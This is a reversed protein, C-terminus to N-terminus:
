VRVCMMDVVFGRMSSLVRVVDDFNKDFSEALCVFDRIVACDIFHILGSGATGRITMGVIQTPEEPNPPYRFVVGGSLGDLQELEVSTELRLQHCHAHVSEGEYVGRLVVRAFHIRRSEYDVFRSESPYGLIFLEDGAVLENCDFFHHDIDWAYLCSDTTRWFEDSNIRLMYLDKNDENEDVKKIQFLEDFPLSITSNISPTIMLDHPTAGQSEMVHRATLWYVNKGSSVLLSSGRGWYPFELDRSLFLVPRTALEHEKVSDTTITDESNM